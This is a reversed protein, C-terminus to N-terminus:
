KQERRTENLKTLEAEIMWPTASKERLRGKAGDVKSVLVVRVGDAAQLQPAGALVLSAVSLAILSM